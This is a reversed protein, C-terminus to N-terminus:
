REPPKPSASNWGFRDTSENRRHCRVQVLTSRVARSRRGDDRVCAAVSNMAGSYERGQHDAVVERDGGQSARATGGPDAARAGTAGPRSRCARQGVAPNALAEKLAANLKAIRDKPTGKPAWLAHWVSVHFGPLGAEDASPIDPAAALRNKATVAFPRIKGAQVQPLANAAQDFMLDIQGALLDQMAPAAGLFERSKNGSALAAKTERAFFFTPPVQLAEAIRTLRGISLRNTGLRAMVTVMDQAMFRKAYPAHDSTSAPCGSRGYGRLDACVVTFYGALLPAVGRWMLHTQPFGHLLLIPPGSGRSRVFISTEGTQVEGISFDDMM